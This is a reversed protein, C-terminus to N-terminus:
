APPATTSLVKPHRYTGSKQLPTGLPRMGRAIRDDDGRRRRNKFGILLRRTAGCGCTQLLIIDEWLHDDARSCPSCSVQDETLTTAELWNHEHEDSM